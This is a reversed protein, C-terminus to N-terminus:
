TAARHANGSAVRKPAKYDRMFQRLKDATRSRVDSGSRFRSVFATDNLCIKGFTTEPMRHRALFAEIEALLTDRTSM